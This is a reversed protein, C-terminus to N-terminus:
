TSSKTLCPLGLRREFAIAQTLAFKELITVLMIDAQKFMGLEVSRHIEILEASFEENEHAASAVENDEALLSDIWGLTLKLESPVGLKGTSPKDEQGTRSEPRQRARDPQASGNLQARVERFAQLDVCSMPIHLWGGGVFWVDILPDDQWWDVEDVFAWGLNLLANIAADKRRYFFV